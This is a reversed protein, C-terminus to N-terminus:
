CVPIVYTTCSKAGENRNYLVAQGLGAPVPDLLYGTFKLGSCVGSKLYNVTIQNRYNVTISNLGAPALGRGAM